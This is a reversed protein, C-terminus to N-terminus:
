DFATKIEDDFSTEIIESNDRIIWKGVGASYRVEYEFNYFECYDKFNATMKNQSPNIKKLEPFSIFLNNYLDKVSLYENQIYRIQNLTFLYGKLPTENCLDNYKKNAKQKAQEALYLPLERDIKGQAETICVRLRDCITAYSYNWIGSTYRLVDRLPYRHWNAEPKIENIRDILQNHQKTLQNIYRIQSLNLLTTM